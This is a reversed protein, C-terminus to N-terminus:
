THSRKLRNFHKKARLSLEADKVFVLIRDPLFELATEYEREVIESVDEGVLQVFIDANRVEDLSVKAASSPQAPFAEFHLAAMSMGEVAERVADRYPEMGKM